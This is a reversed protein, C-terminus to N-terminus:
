QKLSHRTFAEDRRDPAAEVGKIKFLQIALIGSFSICAGVLFQQTRPFVQTLLTCIFTLIALVRASCLPNDWGTVLSDLGKAIKM